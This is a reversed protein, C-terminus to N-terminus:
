KRLCANAERRAWADSELLHTLTAAGNLPRRAFVDATVEVIEPFRLEGAEFRSVAAEKAANLVAGACGGAEAAAAGLRLAPFKDYDPTEFHLARVQSWDLPPTVAPGREPYTLAYAIPTCMDPAGLQAVSSGDCFEVMSHVISEPHVLVEIRDAELGFLHHAEVIELAKNMMTASDITIKPGMSWTPHNLADSLTAAAIQESSWTRFPGGSATLYIRRVESARGAHLAQFVASHESDVPILRAGTREALPMLLAGAIVLSEKNALGVDIGLEVARLTAPLGAAGIIASIVFNVEPQEVAELLGEPGVFLRVGDPLVGRLADAQDPDTIAVFDPRCRRAQDALERWRSHATLGVVRVRDSLADAATLTSCGVSGTSGLILVNRM